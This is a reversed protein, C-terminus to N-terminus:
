RFSGFLWVPRTAPEFRETEKAYPRAIIPANLMVSRREAESNSPMIKIATPPVIRDTAGAASRLAPRHSAPSRMM